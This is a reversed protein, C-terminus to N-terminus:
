FLINQSISGFGHVTRRFKLFFKFVPKEGYRLKVCDAWAIVERRLYSKSGLSAFNQLPDANWIWGNNALILEDEHHRSTADNIPLRTFYPDVLPESNILGFVM